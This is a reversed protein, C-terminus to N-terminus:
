KNRQCLRSSNCVLARRDVEGRKECQLYVVQYGKLCKSISLVRRIEYSILVVHVRVIMVMVLLLVPSTYM